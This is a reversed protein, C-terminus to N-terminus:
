NNWRVFALINYVNLYYYYYDDDDDDNGDDDADNDCHGTRDKHLFLNSSIQPCRVLRIYKWVIISYLFIDM